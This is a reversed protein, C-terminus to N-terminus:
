IEPSIEQTYFVLKWTFEGNGDFSFFKDTGIDVFVIKIVEITKVVM